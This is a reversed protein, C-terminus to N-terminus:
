RRASFPVRVEAHEGPAALESATFIVRKVALELVDNSDRWLQKSFRAIHLENAHRQLEEAYKSMTSIYTGKLMTAIETEGFQLAEKYLAGLLAAGDLTGIRAILSVGGMYEKTLGFRVNRRREKGMLETRKPRAVGLLFSQGWIFDKLECLEMDPRRLLQWFNSRFITATGYGAEHQDVREVLGSEDGDSPVVGVRRIREFAKTPIDGRKAITRSGIFCQNLQYDTMGSAVKVHWYWIRARLADLPDRPPRGRRPVVEKTRTAGLGWGAILKSPPVFTDMEQGSERVIARWSM